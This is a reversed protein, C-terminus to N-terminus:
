STLVLAVGISTMTTSSLPTLQLGTDILQQGLAPQGFAARPRLRQDKGPQDIDAGALDGLRALHHRDIGLNDDLAAVVGPHRAAADLQRM